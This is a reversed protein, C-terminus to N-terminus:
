LTEIKKSKSNILMVYFQTGFILFALILHIPQLIKPIQFYAMGAGVLIESFILFLMLTSLKKFYTDGESKKYVLYTIFLQLFLIMLSFSRHILFNSGLNNIIKDRNNIGFIKLLEDVNERVETGLIIQTLFIILSFIISYSLLSSRKSVFYYKSSLNFCLIVNCIILLAVIVHFTILGSLLNTSVVISGVWAQFFVLIISLLSLLFLKISFPKLFVSSILILLLSFGVIAGILRNIYETWTKFVNFEEADNIQPDNIIKQATDSFGIADLVKSLRKNKEIRGKVFDEKYTQPLEEVSTPPIYLGFCKPWDPCGMGSGTCRVVGGALILLYLLVLSIKTLNNYNKGLFNFM